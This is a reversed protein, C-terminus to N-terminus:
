IQWDQAGDDQTYAGVSNTVVIPDGVNFNDYFWKADSPKINICGHSVNRVGQDAESWPASSTRGTVTRHTTAPSEWRCPPVPPDSSIQIAQEALARDTVPADFDIVIPNAVGVTAGDAPSITPSAFPAAAAFPESPGAVNLEPDASARPMVTVAGALTVGAVLM